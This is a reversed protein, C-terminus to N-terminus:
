YLTPTFCCCYSRVVIVYKDSNYAEEGNEAMKVHQKENAHM